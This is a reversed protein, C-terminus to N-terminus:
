LGFAAAFGIKHYAIALWVSAILMMLPTKYQRTFIRAKKSLKEGGEGGTLKISRMAKDLFAKREKSDPLYVSLMNVYVSLEGPGRYGDQIWDRFVRDCLRGKEVWADLDANRKSVVRGYYQSFCFDIETRIRGVVPFVRFKSKTFDIISSMM